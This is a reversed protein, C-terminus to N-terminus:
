WADMTKFKQENTVEYGLACHAFHWADADCKCTGSLAQAAGAGPQMRYIPKTHVQIFM